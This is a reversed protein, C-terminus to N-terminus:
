QQSRLTRTSPCVVLARLRAQHVHTPLAKTFFDARNTDGPEWTVTFQGQRIRDRIWHFRMDISKSRKIKLTDNSLGVACKNDCKIPTAPQPHGFANLLIRLWVANQANVFVSGYEAEAASAVIVDLVRSTALLPPNDTGLFANGGVVSRSRSRSLYSADSHVELLMNSRRYVLHNDPHTAAYALLRDVMAQVASTPHAMECAIANVATLMSSDIVRAYYLLCGVIEQCRKVAAPQLPQDATPLITQVSAKGYAIPVYIMPSHTPPFPAPHFRQLVKAIYGPMSLTVSSNDPAFIIDMGLYKRGTWDVTIAYKTRLVALLHEAAARDHYKIGFDDVTLCFQVGNDIHTFLCPVAPHELYGNDALLAVLHQQSIIGAQPLGYMTKDVRMVIYGDSASHDLSFEAMISPPIIKTPMRFFEPTPLDHNLYFDSIDATVFKADTALISNLMVKFVEPESTRAALDGAPHLRDGGITGRVRRTIVGDKMKVRVQPNYYTIDKRRDDPVASALIPTITGTNILRRIEVAHAEEWAAKDPGTIESRYSIPKGNLDLNLLM